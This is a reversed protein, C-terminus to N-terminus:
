GVAKLPSHKDFSGTKTGALKIRKTLEDALYHPAIAIATLQEVDPEFFKVYKLKQHDLLKCLDNLSPLDPVALCILYGSKKKWDRFTISFKEAFESM